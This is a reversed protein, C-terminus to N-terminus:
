YPQERPNRARLRDGPGDRQSRPDEQVERAARDAPATIHYRGVLIMYTALVCHFTVPILLTWTIAYRLIMSSLYLWGFAHGWRGLAPNPRACWGRGRTFDVNAKSMLVIILIQSALLYPYAILGSYWHRMPPLWTAGAFAVLAQGMVRLCFVALLVWLVPALRAAREIAM